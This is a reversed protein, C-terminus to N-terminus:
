CFHKTCSAKSLKNLSSLEMFFESQWSLWFVSKDQFRKRLFWLALLKTNSTHIVEIFITCIKAELDFESGARPIFPRENSIYLSIKLFMKELGVLGLNIINLM